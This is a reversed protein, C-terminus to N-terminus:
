GSKLREFRDLMTEAVEFQVVRLDEREKGDPGIFVLTPFGLIGYRFALASSEFTDARTLDAKLMVFDGSAEVVRPDGFTTRDMEFCIFCWDAFFDIVAPRGGAKAQELAEESYPQWAVKQGSTAVSDPATWWLALAFFIMGLSLRAFKFTRTTVPTREFFGFYLGAAALCIFVLPGFVLDPVVTKLFYLAAGFLLTGMVKKTYVMWAGSKPLRQVLGSFTALFVFPTAFGLGLSLFMAFGMGPSGREAVFALLSVIFAALCSAGAIGMTLGMLVAGIPGGRSNRGVISTLASPLRLEYVGFANLGMAVCLAALVTLVAPHHLAAGFLSGSLAAMTGVIAYSVAVGLGFVCALALQRTWRGGSQSGFYGVTIPIIPYVCPTLTLGLGLIYMALFAPAYGYRAVFAEADFDSVMAWFGKEASAGDVAPQIEPARAQVQAASATGDLSKFVDRHRMDGAAANADVSIVLPLKLTEPALCNRDDCAQVEVQLAVTLAGPAADESVDIRADIWVEKQYVSLPDPSFALRAIKGEAYTVSGLTAGPTDKIGILTPVLRDQLPKNSNIHWGDDIAIRVAARFTGGPAVELSSAFAEASVPERRDRADARAAVASSASRQKAIAKRGPFEDLYMDAALLLSMTGTPARQMQGLFANLCEESAEVYREAGTLDGLKVLVRAAVGNGSPISRDYPDKSRALLDEHDPSTFFFGGRKDDEYHEVVADMLAAAEDSWRKNGTAEHLDLLGDALFAYDDLYASVRARGERYSRLLRGDKQMATLMFDAAKKAAEVYRDEELVQGGHALSGIMLGNWATLVKDDLHPRIRKNRRELLMKRDGSLRARLQAPPINEAKAIEAVPRKLHPINRNLKKGAAEDRFNGNKEISYVRSFFEGEEEGLVELIEDRNWLYFKGEEGESDADLASYFGGREDTMERLVWEYTEVAAERYRENGTLRFADVYVRALQANDYLMKEFHPVLWKEDTSYRHFGGGVHDRMGGLAMADLTHTAMELLPEEGARGYEYLILSLSGHPPFKPAGGFGGYRSDFSARLRDLGATVLLRSLEGSSAIQPESSIRKITAALTEAQAEVDARRTNWLENLRRLITKFGPRGASDERPFYTGAFWPKRDPTLWVSNPWGGRGMILQTANMYIEDIDPREERDVKIAVFYKNLLEAVDAHEFCEREMVHCWHCTSYGVSLFIPLNNVKARAFAEPGWPYWDVPNRAHQLLYPSKEHILRNFEPGGDPPLKAIEEATPLPKRVDAQEAHCNVTGLVQVFLAVVIAAVIADAKRM